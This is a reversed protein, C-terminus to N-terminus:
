KIPIIEESIRDRFVTVNQLAPIPPKVNSNQPVCNLSYGMACVCLQMIYSSFYSALPVWFAFHEICGPPMQSNKESAPRSCGRRLPEIEGMRQVPPPSPLSSLANSPLEWLGAPSSPTPERSQTTFLWTLPSRLQLPCPPVKALPQPAMPHPNPRVGPALSGACLM